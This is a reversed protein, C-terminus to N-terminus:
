TDRAVVVAMWLWGALLTTGGIPAIAGLWGMGTVALLYLSGSFVVTGFVFLVGPGAWAKTPWRAATLGLLLLAIAHYMQYRAGTEFTELRDPTISGELGHAGFAGAAVALFALLTGAILFPRHM